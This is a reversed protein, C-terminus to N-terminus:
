LAVWLADRDRDGFLYTKLLRKFIDTNDSPIKGLFHHWLLLIEYLKGGVM